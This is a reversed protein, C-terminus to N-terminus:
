YNELYDSEIIPAVCRMGIDSRRNYGYDTPTNTGGILQMPSGVIGGRGSQVGEIREQGLKIAPLQDVTSDVAPVNAYLFKNITTNENIANAISVTGTYDDVGWVFHTDTETGSVLGKEGKIFEISIQRGATGPEIAEFKIPGMYSDLNADAFYYTTSEESRTFNLLGIDEITSSGTSTSVNKFLKSLPEDPDTLIAVVDSWKANSHCDIDIQRRTTYDVGLAGIYCIPGGPADTPSKSAGFVNIGDNATINLSYGDLFKGGFAAEVKLKVDESGGKYEIYNFTRFVKEGESLYFTPANDETPFVVGQATGNNLTLPSMLKAQVCDLGSGSNILDVLGSVSTNSGISIVINPCASLVYDTATTNNFIKINIDNSLYAGFDSGTSRIYIGNSSSIPDTDTLGFSAVANAKTTEKEFLEVTGSPPTVLGDVQEVGILRVNTGSVNTNFNSVSGFNAALSSVGAPADYTYRKESTDGDGDCDYTTNKISGTNSGGFTFEMCFPTTEFLRHVRAYELGASNFFSVSRNEFQALDFNSAGQSIKLYRSAIPHTNVANQIDAVTTSEPDIDVTVLVDTNIISGNFKCDASENVSVSAPGTQEDSIAICINNGLKGVEVAQVLLGNNNLTRKARGDPKYSSAPIFELAWQGAGTGSLYSGGYALGAAQSMFDNPNNVTIGEITNAINEANYVHVDDRLEDESIGPGIQKFFDSFYSNSAIPTTFYFDNIPLGIPVSFYNGGNLRDSITTTTLYRDAKSCKDIGDLENCPGMNGDMTYVDDFLSNNNYDEDFLFLRSDDLSTSMKCTKDTYCKVRELGWEAVNGIADQVGYRSTCLETFKFINNSVSGTYLSRINSSQTGPLSFSYSSPPIDSETYGTLLGSANSSNCRSLVNLSTGTEKNTLTVSDVGEPWASYAVQQTRNPLSSKVAATTTLGSILSDDIDSRSTCLRQATKQRVNVLPPLYAHVLNDVFSSEVTYTQANASSDGIYCIDAIQDYFIQNLPLTGDAPKASGISQYPCGGFERWGGRNYQYCQGDNRDYFILGATGTPPLSQGVCSDGGCDGNADNAALTYPCGAEMADVMLDHGIDFYNDLPDQISSDIITWDGPTTSNSKYCSKTSTDYFLAGVSKATISLGSGLPSGNGTCESNATFCESKSYDCRRQGFGNYACRYYKGKGKEINLSMKGCIEKNMILRSVWVKNKPPLIVRLQSYPERTPVIQNNLSDLPMVQYWFVQGRNPHCNNDVCTTGVTKDATFTDTFKRLSAVNSVLTPKTYDFGNKTTSRFIAWGGISVSSGEVNGIFNFDNWELTIFGDKLKQSYRDYKPGVAIIDKWGGHNAAVSNITIQFTVQNSAASSDVVELVIDSTGNQGPDPSLNIVFNQQDASNIGDSLAVPIINAAPLVISNDSSGEKKSSLINVSVTQADENTGSGSAGGEDVAIGTIQYSDGENFSYNGMYSDVIEWDSNTTGTSKWCIASGEQYYYLSFDSKHSVPTINGIPSSSGRCDGSCDSMGAKDSDSTYDCIVPKDNVGVIDINVVGRNKGGQPDTVEFIFYDAGDTGGVLDLTGSTQATPGGLASVSILKNAMPHTSILTAVTINSTTGSEIKLKIDYRGQPTSDDVWNVSELVESGALATNDLIIRIKNGFSGGMKATYTVDESSISAKTVTGYMNGDNPTYTCNLDSNSQMCADTLSGNFPGAVITYTLDGTSSEQDLSNPVSFSYNLSVATASEFFTAGAGADYSIVYPRDNVPNIMFGFSSTDSTQGDVTVRYDFSASGNDNEFSKVYVSCKKLIPDCSCDRTTVKVQAPIHCTDFATLISDPDDYGFSILTEVDEDIVNPLPTTTLIPKNNQYGLVIDVDGEVDLGGADIVKYKFSVVKTGSSQADKVPVLTFEGTASVMSVTAYNPDPDQTITYTFSTEDGLDKPDTANSAVTNLYAVEDSIPSGISGFTLLSQTLVPPDNVPQVQVDIRAENSEGDNDTVTFTFAMFGFANKNPYEIDATDIYVKCIGAICCSGGTTINLGSSVQKISCLTASDGNPDEYNLVVENQSNPSGEIIIIGGNKSTPPQEEAVVQVCKRAKTDFAAKAGCNAGADGGSPNVCSTVLGLVPLGLAILYQQFLKRVIKTM